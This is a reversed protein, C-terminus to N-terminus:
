GPSASLLTSCLRTHVLLLRRYRVLPRRKRALNYQYQLTTAGKPGKLATHILCHMLTADLGIPDDTGRDTRDIARQNRTVDHFTSEISELFEPLSNAGAGRRHRQRVLKNAM